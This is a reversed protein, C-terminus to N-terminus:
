DGETSFLKWLLLFIQETEKTKLPFVWAYKSFCDLVTLVWKYGRKSLIEKHEGFAVQTLDIQIREFIEFSKIHSSHSRKPLLVSSSCIDCHLDTYIKKLSSTNLGWIYFHSKLSKCLTTFKPHNLHEHYWEVLIVKQM